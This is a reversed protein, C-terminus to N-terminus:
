TLYKITIRWEIGESIINKHWDQTKNAICVVWNRNEIMVIAADRNQGFITTEDFGIQYIVFYVSAFPAGFHIINAIGNLIRSCNNIM